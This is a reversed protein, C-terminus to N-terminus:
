PQGVGMGETYEAHRASISGSKSGLEPALAHTRRERQRSKRGGANPTEPHRDELAREFVDWSHDWSLEVAQQYPSFDGHFPMRDTRNSLYAVPVHMSDAGGHRNGNGPGWAFFMSHGDSLGGQAVTWVKDAPILSAEDFMYWSTSIRAHQGTERELERGARGWPYKFVVFGRPDAVFRAM